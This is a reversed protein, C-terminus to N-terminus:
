MSEQLTADTWQTEMAQLMSRSLRRYEQAIYAASAPAHDDKGSGEFSLGMMSMYEISKALHWAIQGLKRYEGGIRHELSEDTLADLVKETLEAERSWESIFDGIKVFM